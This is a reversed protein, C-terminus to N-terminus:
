PAGGLAWAYSAGVSAVPAGLQSRILALAAVADEGEMLEGHLVVADFGLDVLRLGAGALDADGREGAQFAHALLALDRRRFQAAQDPQRAIPDKRDLAAVAAVLPETALPESIGTMLLSYPIPRGHHRQWVLYHGRADDDMMRPPLDLVAGVGPLQGHIAPPGDLGAVAPVRCLGAGPLDAFWCVDAVLLLSALALAVPLRPLGSGSAGPASTDDGALLRLGRAALMALALAALLTWRHPIRMLGVMPLWALGALPGPVGHQGLMVARGGFHLVPGLSLALGVVAVGAWWVRGRPGPLLAGVLALLVVASGLYQVRPHGAAELLGPFFGLWGAPDGVMGALTHPHDSIYSALDPGQFLNAGDGLMSAYLLAPGLVLVGFSGLTVLAVRARCRLLAWALAYLGFFAGYYWSAVATLAGLAGALLADQWRRHDACRELAWLALVLPWAAVTESEGGLAQGLLFPSLGFALGALWGAARSGSVRAGLLWSALAALWLQLVLLADYAAVRGLLPEFGAYLLWGVPDPHMLRGGDPWALVRTYLPGDGSFLSGGLWDHLWLHDFLDRTPAGLAATGGQTAPWLLVLLLALYALAGLALWPWAPRMAAGPEMATSSGAM